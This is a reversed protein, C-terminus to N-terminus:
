CNNFIVLYHYERTLPSFNEWPFKTLLYSVPNSEQNWCFRDAKWWPHPWSRRDCQKLGRPGRGPVKLSLMAIESPQDALEM